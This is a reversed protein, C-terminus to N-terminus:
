GPNPIGTLLGRPVVDVVKWGGAGHALTFRAQGTSRTPPRGGAFSQEIQLEVTVTARSDEVARDVIRFYARFADHQGLRARMREAFRGYGEFQRPDFASLLLKPNRRTFGDAIRSLLADAVADSFQESELIPRESSGPTNSTAAPEGRPSTPTSATGSQQAGTVPHGLFVMLLLAAARTM